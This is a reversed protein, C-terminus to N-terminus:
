NLRINRQIKKAADLDDADFGAVVNGLVLGSTVLIRDFILAATVGNFLPKLRVVDILSPKALVLADLSFKFRAPEVRAIVEVILGFLAFALSNNDFGRALTSQGFGLGIGVVLLSGIPGRLDNGDVEETTLTLFVGNRYIPVRM